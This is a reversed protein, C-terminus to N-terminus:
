HRSKTVSLADLAAQYRAPLDGQSGVTMGLDHALGNKLSYIWAHVTLAQGRAWADQVVHTQCVNAAQELANLECLRDHRADEPLSGVLALHKQHVDQVHRLWIDVLGVRDKQLAAKVGGCGYHGVVMIHKVKLVDIAYQIVSLCNLDTHAVVNAVNRHVFVEGPLLGVIQNAPVRSDSCGIWLYDPTQIGSLKNFYDPDLTQMQNSWVRNFDFLHLLNEDRMNEESWDQLDLSLYISGELPAPYYAPAETFGMERYLKVAMRMSPITDLVLRHFGMEKAARIAAVALATGVGFGRADPAVYMRKMECMNESMARIGVCGAPHGDIEGVFLRGTLASYRGPLTAIEEDFSQFSLNVGMWAAYDRFFERIAPIAPDDPATILRATVTM